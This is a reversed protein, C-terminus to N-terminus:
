LKECDKDKNIFNTCMVILNPKWLTITGIYFEDFSYDKSILDYNKFKTNETIYKIVKDKDALRSIYVTIENENALKLDTKIAQM